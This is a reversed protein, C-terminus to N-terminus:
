GTVYRIEAKLEGSRSIDIIGYSPTKGLPRPFSISGPNLITIGECKVLLPHHTHGFLAIDAGRKKADRVLKGMGSSIHEMHGHVMWIKHNEVPILKEDELSASEDMNGKVFDVPCVSMRKIEEEGGGIDGLHFIRDYRIEQAFVKKLNDHRGHTDSIILIRM